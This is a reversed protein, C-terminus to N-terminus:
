ALRKYRKFTLVLKRDTRSLKDSEIYLNKNLFYKCKSFICFALRRKYYNYAYRTGIYLIAHSFKNSYVYYIM